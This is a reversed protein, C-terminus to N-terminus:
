NALAEVPICSQGSSKLADLLERISKKLVPHMMDPSMDCLPRLVFERLHMRPHPVILGPIDIVRDNFFVIDFDLPRPGFRVGTDKRGCAAELTKLETLLEAPALRTRIRAAANVFWPQDTYEMPETFYYRSISEVIVSGSANLAALGQRCNELRDGLNSGVSIYVTHFKDITMDHTMANM